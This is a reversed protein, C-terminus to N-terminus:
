ELIKLLRADPVHKLVGIKMEDLWEGKKYGEVVQMRCRWLEDIFAPIFTGPGKVDGREAAREAAIEYHLMGAVAALLKDVPNAAMYAAITTGLTCGSGTVMGLFRHGNAINYTRTGDSIVDTSGTMLVVNRERRAISQVLYARQELSFVSSGSDVGRQQTGDELVFGSAQAVAMIERENGKILDFYGCAMLDALAERRAQTAGAGVPDLVVPGGFANYAEIARQHNQLSEPTATGMNIVLSGGLRALDVAELGNNSMIPSSGIALAVSAAFNQVVLNTMNHNIPSTEHLHQVHKLTRQRIHSEEDRADGHQFALQDTKKNFTPTSKLLTLLHRSTEDPSPSGMIASVIAVGDITKPVQPTSPAQLQFVVRQLNRANIGGICVTKIRM